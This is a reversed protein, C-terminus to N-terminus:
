NSPPILVTDIGHIVGNSAEVDPAVVSADDADPNITVDSGSRVVTVDSGELTPLATEMTPVDAAFFIDDLVHYQLIDGANSPIEGDDITGNDNADLAALFAENTPAFVTIGDEGDPGAGSL